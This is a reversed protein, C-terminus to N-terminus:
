SWAPVTGGDGNSGPATWVLSGDANRQFSYDNFLVEATLTQGSHAIAVTRGLQGAALTRYNKLVAHSLNAGDDFVGSLSISIDALLLLRAMASQSTATVDQVGSPLNWSANTVM